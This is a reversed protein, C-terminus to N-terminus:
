KPAYPCIMVGTSIDYLQVDVCLLSLGTSARTGELLRLFGNSIFVFFWQFYVCLVVPFLCLSGCFIFM